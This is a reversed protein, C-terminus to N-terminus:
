SWHFFRNFFKNKFIDTLIENIHIISMIHAHKYYLWLYKAICLANDIEFVINFPNKLLDYDFKYSFSSTNKNQEYVQFFSDLIKIAMFVCPSDYANTHEIIIKYFRNMDNPNYIFISFLKLLSQPYQSVPKTKLEAIISNKIENIGPVSDM